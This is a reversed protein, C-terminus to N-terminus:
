EIVSDVGHLIRKERLGHYLDEDTMHNEENTLLFIGQDEKRDLVLRQWHYFYPGEGLNRVYGMLQHLLYVTQKVDTQCDNGYFGKWKGHCSGEMAKQALAFCDAAQGLLFFAKLYERAAFSDYAEGFLVAGEASYGHIRAQLLFSDQWLRSQRGAAECCAILRGFAPLGNRCLDAFWRIQGAFDRDPACWQLEGCGKQGGDMRWHCILIRTVYHYFQEGAHEDENTGYPIMANFYSKVCEEMGEQADAEYYQELYHKLHTEPGYQRGNWLSALFDLPYVHPKVNSCNVLWMHRIGRHYATRLEREVFEMSNPIMTLVNAAQLDYFSVHYYVGHRNGSTDESIQADPLAPIRPNHNGQRRSVMKGYGNDAWITIVDDPIELYGQRYLEMTEGYLNTCFCPNGVYKKVLHYQEQMISSILKGRKEPTDYQPDHEWFPIDGQGRFGLNWIVNWDKQRLIGERWLQRFLDPYLQFSPELDPYARLFMEAGLPEAHHQTIWLGMGAALDAYIKSNKDTGPIVLNGGCRLLAEMAMEWPYESNKGGDWHSILVEDNIFWGRFRVKRPKSCYEGEPITVERKRTFKQDNWFWFPLVGLYTESLYILGYIFGLEDAAELILCQGDGAWIRYSEPEMCGNEPERLYIKGRGEMPELTMDMDRYFRAAARRIPETEKRIQMIIETNGTLRFGEM